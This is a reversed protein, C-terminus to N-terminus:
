AVRRPPTGLTGALTYLLWANLLHWLFHLGLPWAACLAQDLSRALLSLCFVGAAVRMRRGAAPAVVGAYVTLALLVALAPLYLLSGNFAGPPLVMAASRDLAIFGIGAAVAGAVPWHAVIRLFLVLFVVNFIGIFLVDLIGAGVTALTHFALSGAGVLGILVALCRQPLALGPPAAAANRWLRWGAYFFAANSLANLPEAYWAFGHRECYANIHDGLDM